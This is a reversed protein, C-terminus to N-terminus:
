PSVSGRTRNGSSSLTLRERAALKSLHAAIRVRVAVGDGEFLNLHGLLFAMCNPGCQGQGGCDVIMREPAIKVALARLPPPLLGRKTAFHVPLTTTALTSVEERQAQGAPALCDGVSILRQELFSTTDGALVEEIECDDSTGGGRGGQAVRGKGKGKGKSGKAGKGKGRGGPAAGPPYPPRMYASPLGAAEM